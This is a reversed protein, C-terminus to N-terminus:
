SRGCSRRARSRRSGRRGPAAGDSAKAGPPAVTMEIFAGSASEVVDIRPTSDFLAGELLYDRANAALPPESVTVFAHFFYSM